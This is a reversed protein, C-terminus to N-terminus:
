LGDVFLDLLQLPKHNCDLSDVTIKQLITPALNHIVANLQCYSILQFRYNVATKLM